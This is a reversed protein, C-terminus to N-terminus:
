RARFGEFPAIDARRPPDIVRLGIRWGDGTSPAGDWHDVADLITQGLLLRAEREDLEQDDHDNEGDEHRDGDRRVEAELVLRGVGGELRVDPGGDRRDL